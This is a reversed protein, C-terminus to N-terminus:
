EGENWYNSANLFISPYCAAVGSKYQTIAATILEEDLFGSGIQAIIKITFATGFVYGVAFGFAVVFIMLLIIKDRM